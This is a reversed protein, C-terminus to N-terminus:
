SLLTYIYAAYCLLLISAEVRDLIFRRGMMVYLFAVSLMMVGLDLTRVGNAAFPQIVATLGLVALINLINSGIANGFAIDPEDKYAAVASTALEPLSTGIAVITLGIVIDSIGFSKAISVSGDLLVHAGLILLGLGGVVLVGDVLPNKGTKEVAEEYEELVEKKVKQRSLWYILVTYVVAGFVLIGGEVRSMEGDYVFLWLIGSAAVLVPMERRLIEAKVALPRVLAAIGLILAINSINSGIINGLAIGSNGEFAATLSVVFEPSGTGFAVITLGVVLPSVGFRLAASSSGRVLLEAGLTLVILGALILLVSVLM